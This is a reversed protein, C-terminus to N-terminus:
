LLRGPVFTLHITREPRINAEKMRRITEMHRFLYGFISFTLTLLNFILIYLIGVSKM